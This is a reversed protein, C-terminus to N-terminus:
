SMRNRPKSGFYSMTEALTAASIEGMVIPHEYGAQLAELDEAARAGRYGRRFDECESIAQAVHEPCMGALERFIVDVCPIDSLKGVTM